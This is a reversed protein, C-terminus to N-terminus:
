LVVAWTCDCATAQDVQGSTRLVFLYGGDVFAGPLTVSGCAVRPQSCDFTEAILWDPVVPVFAYDVLVLDVASDAGGQDGASDEILTPAGFPFLVEEHPAAATRLFALAPSATRPTFSTITPVGLAAVVVIGAIAIAMPVSVWHFLGARFGEPARARDLGGSYFTLGLFGAVQPAAVIAAITFTLSGFAVIFALVLIGPLVLGLPGQDLGIHFFEAVRIAVDLGAGLAFTQIAGTVLTFLVVVLAIRPRARFLRVSRRLAEIAGVDGLVISTAAFAWPTVVLIGIMSGIFQAGTNGDFPRLFPLTVLFSVIGSVVVVLAGAAALRWFTQRARTVAE